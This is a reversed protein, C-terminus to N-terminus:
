SQIRGYYIIIIMFTMHLYTSVFSEGLCELYSLSKESKEFLGYPSLCNPIDIGPRPEPDLVAAKLRKTTCTVQKMGGLAGGRIALDAATLGGARLGEVASDAAQLGGVGLPM